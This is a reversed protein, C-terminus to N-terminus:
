CVKEVEEVRSRAELEARSAPPSLVAAAPVARYAGPKDVAKIMM